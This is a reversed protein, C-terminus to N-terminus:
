GVGELVMPEPAGDYSATQFGSELAKRAPDDAPGQLVEARVAEPIVLRRNDAQLLELQGVKSLTILPSANVVWQEAM